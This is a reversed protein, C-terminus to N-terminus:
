QKYDESKIGIFVLNQARDGLDKERAQDALSKGTMTCVWPGGISISTYM